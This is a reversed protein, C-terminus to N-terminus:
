SLFFISSVSHDSAWSLLSASITTTVLHCPQTSAVLLKVEERGGAWYALEHQCFVSCLHM